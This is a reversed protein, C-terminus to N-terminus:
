DIKKPYGFYYKGFQKIERDTPISQTSFTIYPGAADSARHDVIAQWMEEKSVEGWGGADTRLGTKVNVYDAFHPPGEPLHVIADPSSTEIIERCVAEEDEYMPINRNVTAVVAMHMMTVGPFFAPKISDNPGMLSLCPLPILGILPLLLARRRTIAGEAWSKFHFAALPALFLAGHMFFRGGYQFLMPLFGLIQSRFVETGHKRSRFWGWIVLGIMIPNLIQLWGLRNLIADLTWGQPGGSHMWDANAYYRVTWPLAIILGGAIVFLAHKMCDRRYLGLVFFALCMLVPMGTHFYFAAGLLIAGWYPKKKLICLIILPWLSSAISAPLALLNGFNYMFHMMLIILSLYAWAPTTVKRVLLWATFLAFPYQLMQVNSFGNEVREPTGAFFAILLHLGPPYLHPRGMPQFEWDDWYPVTGQTLINRAAAMHYYNDSIGSYALLNEKQVALLVFVLAILGLSFKDLAHQFLPANPDTQQLPTRLALTRDLWQFFAIAIYILAFRWFGAFFLITGLFFCPYSLIRAPIRLWNRNIPHNWLWLGLPWLGANCAIFGPWHWRPGVCYISLSRLWGIILAPLSAIWLLAAKLQKM